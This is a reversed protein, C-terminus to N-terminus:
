METVYVGSWKVECFNKLEILQGPVTVIFLLASISSNLKCATTPVSHEELMNMRGMVAIQVCFGCATSYVVSIELLKCKYM